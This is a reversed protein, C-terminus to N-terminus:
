VRHTPSETGPASRRGGRQMALRAQLSNRIHRRATEEADVEDRKRIAVIIMSHEAIAEPARGVHSFTTSQFRLVWTHVNRIFEHLMVNRSARSIVEHFDVNLRAVRDYDGTQYAEDILENVEEMEILDSATAFQAALRAAIGDLAERITYVELIQEVTVAAVVLGRRRNRTLLQESELRLLAERIPTRSVEFVEALREERLYSGPQLLGSVVAGKLTDHVADASSEEAHTRSFLELLESEVADPRIAADSAKKSSEAGTMDLPRSM